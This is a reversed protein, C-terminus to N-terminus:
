SLVRHYKGCTCLIELRNKKIRSKVTANHKSPEKKTKLKNLIKLYKRM